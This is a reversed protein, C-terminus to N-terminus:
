ILILRTTAVDRSHLTEDAGREGGGRGGSGSGGGGGGDGWWGGSIELEWRYRKSSLKAKLLNLWSDLFTKSHSINFDMSIPSLFM